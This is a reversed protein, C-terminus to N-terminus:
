QYRRGSQSNQMVNFASNYRGESMQKTVIKEVVFSIGEETIQPQAKIENSAKNYIKIQTARGGVGNALEFLKRQQERNIIMEGSNVRADIRDGTYSTGGVIGGTAFAPPQPKNAGILAAQAAGATAVLGALIFNLPPASSSLAKTFAVATNVLSNALNVGWEWMEIKYKEKRTKKDLELLEAEYKEASIVGDAYKKDLEHQEAGVRAEIAKQALATISSMMSTYETMFSSAIDLISEAKEAWSKVSVENEKKEAETIKEALFIKTKAFDEELRKREDVNETLLEITENYFSELDDLQKKLRQSELEPLISAFLSELEQTDEIIKQKKEEATLRDLETEYLEQTTQLLSKAVDSQHTIRGDSNAVLDVYSSQYVALKEAETVEEGRLRAGEELAVLARERALTNAEIYEGLLKEEEAKKFTAEAQENAVITQRKEEAAIRERLSLEAKAFILAEENEATIQKRGELNERFVELGKVHDELELKDQQILSNELLNQKTKEIESEIEKINQILEKDAERRKEIANIYEKLWKDDIIKVGSEGSANESRILDTFEQIDKNKFEAKTLWTMLGDIARTGKIYFGEWFKDWLELSPDFLKGFAETFTRKAQATKADANATSEAYGDLAQAVLRVAEGNKLQEQTLGKIAVNHRGLTGAMGSYTANLKDTATDLNTGEKVALNLGANIIDFVEAEKRGNAILKQMSALIENDSIGAVKQMQMAYNKLRDEAEGTYYPNNKISLALMTEATSQDRYALSADRMSTLLKKLTAIVATISAVPSLASTALEKMGGSFANTKKATEKTTKSTEKLSKNLKDTSKKVDSAPKKVADLNKKVNSLGKDVGSSDLETKIVVKGDEM